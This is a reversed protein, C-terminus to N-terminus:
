RRRGGTGECKIRDRERLLSYYYHIVEDSLWTGPQLTLLNRRTITDGELTAMIEAESGTQRLGKDVLRSEEDTLVRFVKVKARAEAEEAARREAEEREKKLVRPPRWKDIDEKLTERRDRTMDEM